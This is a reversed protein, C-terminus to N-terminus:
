GPQKNGADGVLGGATHRNRGPRSTMYILPVVGRVPVPQRHSKGVSPRDDRDACEHGADRQTRHERQGHEEVRQGPVGAPGARPDRRRHGQVEQDHARACEAPARHAIAEASADDHQDACNQEPEREHERAARLRQQLELQGVADEDPRAALVNKAGIIASVVAHNSVCRLRATESTEAPMPTAGIVIEGNARQSMVVYSQRVAISTMPM